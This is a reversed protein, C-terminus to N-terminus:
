KTRRAIPKNTHASVAITRLTKVIRRTPPPNLMMSEVSEHLRRVAPDELLSLLEKSKPMGHYIQYLLRRAHEEEGAEIARKADALKGAVFADRGAGCGLVLITECDSMALPFPNGWDAAGESAAAPIEALISDIAAKQIDAM